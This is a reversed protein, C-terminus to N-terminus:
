EGQWLPFYGTERVIEQGEKKLVWNLFRQKAGRPKDVTYLYLYRTLPYLDYRVSSETPPIGNIRCHYISDGYAIGGYGIANSQHSIAAVVAATTPAVTAAASYDAEELIHEQFYLYTGSNPPRILVMIPADLGGVESWNVVTGGFIEKLQKLTLDKVPNDPHVYVSLADKAVLYSIGVSRHLRALQKSEQPTLTRSAAAIDASGEILARIGTGSGGGEAYISVGPNQRMYDAAWRRTLLVMTDSGKIRIIAPTQQQRIGGCSGCTLALIGAALIILTLHRSM